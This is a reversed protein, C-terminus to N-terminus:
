CQLITSAARTSAGPPGLIKRVTQIDQLSEIRFSTDQWLAYVAPLIESPHDEAILYEPIIKKGCIINPLAFYKCKLMSTKKAVIRHLHTVRYIVVLPTGLLATELTATGSTVLMLRSYHIVDYTKGLIVTLQPLKSKDAFAEWIHQVLSAYKNSALALVLHAIPYDQALRSATWLMVPLNKKIQVTRSGPLLGLIPGDQLQHQVLFEPDPKFEVIKEMLPHGVYQVPVHGHYFDVEFPFIVLMQDIWRQIKKIRWHGWAWIQPTVYYITRIGRTKAHTALYLNFGPYDILVLTDPRECDFYDLIMELFRMVKPIGLIVPVFGMVSFERVLNYLFVMSTKAMCDGGMGAIKVNPNQAQLAQVLQAGYVDGSADGSVIFIHKM